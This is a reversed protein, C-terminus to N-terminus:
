DLGGLKRLEVVAKTIRIGEALDSKPATGGDLYHIFSALEMELASKSHDFSSNYSHVNKRIACDDGLHVEIHDTVEDRLIAIGETGHVRVERIKKWYRNSVEFQFLPLQGLTASMARAKKNHREVTVSTPQPIQDLILECITLDHPVLNWVSDIDIRPSTWNCRISKASLITGLKGSKAIDALANVGPHYKWIHMVYIPQDCFHQLAEADQWATVLPKEVFIPKGLPILIQLVKFHTSAPTAVIYGDCGIKLFEGYDKTSVINSLAIEDPRLNIDLICVKMGFDSLIKAIKRGWIGAGILGIKVGSM